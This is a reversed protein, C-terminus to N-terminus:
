RLRRDREDAVLVKRLTDLEELTKSAGRVVCTIPDDAIHVPMKTEYAMRQDMGALLAGGGALFIGTDMIDAVLEPPTEELTTKVADVMMNLPGSLAERIEVSSVQIARPLGTVLDRGKIEVKREEPLPFASGAAIKIDEASREGVLLNHKQRAFQVIEQDMRDGAVRISRSVVIGGLAIVAM